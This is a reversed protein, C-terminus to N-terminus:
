QDVTCDFIAADLAKILVQRDAEGGTRQHTPLAGEAFRRAHELLKRQQYLFLELCM